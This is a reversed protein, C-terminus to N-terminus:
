APRGAAGVALAFTCLSTPDLLFPSAVPGLALLFVQTGAVWISERRARNANGLRLLTETGLSFLPSTPPCGCQVYQSAAVVNQERQECRRQAEFSHDVKNCM